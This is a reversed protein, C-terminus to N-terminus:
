VDREKLTLACYAVALADAADDPKPIEKLNLFFQVAKQVQEKKARGYGVLAQKVQLPTLEIVPLSLQASSLLIVGRAQAVKIATKQNHYFYLSEIAILDPKIRELLRRVERWLTFLREKEEEEKPTEIIGYGKTIIKEKKELAGWGLRATGPDFGIVRM